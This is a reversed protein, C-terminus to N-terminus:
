GPQRGPRSADSGRAHGAVPVATRGVDRNRGVIDSFEEVTMILPLPPKALEKLEEDSIQIGTVRGDKSSRSLTRLELLGGVEAYSEEDEFWIEWYRGIENHYVCPKFGWWPSRCREGRVLAEHLSKPRPILFVYAANWFLWRLHKM